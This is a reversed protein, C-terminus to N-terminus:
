FLGRGRLWEVALFMSLGGGCWGLLLATLLSSKRIADLVSQIMNLKGLVNPLMDAELIDHIGELLECIRELDPDVPEPTDPPDPPDPPEPDDPEDEGPMYGYLSFSAIDWYTGSGVSAVFRYRTYPIENESFVGARVQNTPRGLEGAGFTYITSWTTGDTADLRAKTANGYIFGEGFRLEKVVLAVPATIYLQFSTGPPTADNGFVYESSPNQFLRYLQAANGTTASVKWGSGESNSNGFAPILSIVEQGWVCGAFSLWVACSLVMVRFINM